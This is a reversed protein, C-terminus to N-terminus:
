KDLEKRNQKEVINKIILNIVAIITLLSAVSFASTFNYENYLIEVHLPLTTTVGRIHGSVVSVAGFEGASRAATLVIGYLLAWKINPLTVLWFTKWGSAGLTLAAEEESSGQSQMLPILERAVFPFTVFITSIIIGPTNFIIKINNSSLWNGFLGHTDSFLLVFIFGAIVPSIAFPLDIITILLNKGKFEFKAIAWSAVIGFITNIPVCIAVTLLTLKLAELAMPDTIAGMYVSFGKEFAKTFVAILPVILILAVYIMSIFILINRVIKSEKISSNKVKPTPVKKEEIAISESM